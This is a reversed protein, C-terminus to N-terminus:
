NGTYMRPVSRNDNDFSDFNDLAFNNDLSCNSNLDAILNGAILVNRNRALGLNRSEM